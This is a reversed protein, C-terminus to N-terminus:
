DRGCGAAVNKRMLGLSDKKLLAMSKGGAEIPVEHTDLVFM